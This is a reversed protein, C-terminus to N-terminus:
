ERHCKFVVTGGETYPAGPDLCQIYASDKDTSLGLKRPDAGERLAVAYHLLSPLAHICLNDTRELDIKAGRIVIRDGVRHVPCSGKVKIVEIILSSDSTPNSMGVM